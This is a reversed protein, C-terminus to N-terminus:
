RPSVGGAIRVLDLFEQRRYDTQAGALSAVDKLGFGNMQDDGRLIQGYAAVSIAFAMDGKPAQANQFSTTPISRQILQSTDADPQKYRLKLFVADGSTVPASASRNATFHRDSVWGPSGTPVVEYIATVQHGAGIDGADVKDNNFDQERLARDEYGLLRYQAIAAPNFEVQMKVDKAITFLTSSLEDDLVKRAESMGDLYAYNGNGADAVKEMMSDNLNGRGVGLTTLTIGDARQHRILDLLGEDNSVGVNFDGDTALIVRNIGGQIMAARATAYALNLGQGGATSGGASLCDLAQHVYRKDSTPSLVLGANGAYVVISVRDNPNLRDALMGLASKVLPLRDPKDMSGSVDILFVLNAAPRRASSADYGRLGIRMLRTNANWPTTSVDTTISFPRTRNAPRPYNYRFYNIMEETRVAAAPPLHGEHLYRRANAYAATDVDVSFTSVPEASVQHVGAVPQGNYREADQARVYSRGPSIVRRSIGNTTFPTEVVGPPILVPPPTRPPPSTTPPPPPPPMATVPAVASPKNRIEASPARWQPQFRVNQENVACHVPSDQKQRSQTTGAMAPATWTPPGMIISAMLATRLMNGTQMIREGGKNGDNEINRYFNNGACVPDTTLM